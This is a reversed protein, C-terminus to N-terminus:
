DETIYSYQAVALAYDLHAALYNKYTQLWSIQAQMVDLLSTEGENYAFTSLDLNESAIELSRELAVIRENTRMVLTWADGEALTIARECEEIEVERALQEARASETAARREGFHFIPTSVGLMAGAGLHLGSTATHPYRPELTTYARLDIQPLYEASVERVHWRRSEAELLAIHHEPHSEIVSSLAARQPLPLQETISSSLETPTELPKDCLSNYDHLAVLYAEEAESLQYRVDGLRSEIQLLDGKASYGEEYRRLIVERLTEVIHTYYHMSGRYLVAHSLRWYRREAERRVERMMLRLREQAMRHELEARRQQARLGGGSYITQRAELRTAWSWARGVDRHRFDITATRDFLLEPLLEKGSRTASWQRAEIDLHSRELAISAESVASVYEELSTQASVNHLAILASLLITLRRM